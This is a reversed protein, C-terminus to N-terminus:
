IKCVALFLVFSQNDLGAVAATLDEAVVRGEEAASAPVEALRFAGKRDAMTTTASPARDRVAKVAPNLTGERLTIIEKLPGPRQAPVTKLGAAAAPTRTPPGIGKTAALVIEAGTAMLDAATASTRTPGTGKMAALVIEAGTAM